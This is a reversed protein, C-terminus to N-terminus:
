SERQRGIARMNRDKPTMWFKKLTYNSLCKFIRFDLRGALTSRKRSPLWEVKAHVNQTFSLKRYKWSALDGTFVTAFLFYNKIRLRM